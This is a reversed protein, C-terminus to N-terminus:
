VASAQRMQDNRAAIDEATAPFLIAAGDAAMAQSDDVMQRMGTDYGALARALDGRAARLERALTAAGVMALSTGMGSFFSACYAADGVLVTHGRSWSDMRIQGVSDFYFDPARRVEDIVQPVKWAPEDQFAAVVISRQAEIDRFDYDIWESRFGLLASCDVGDGRLMVMRGPTNYVHSGSLGVGAACRKVIAVYLGLHHVFMEEPGFVLTRVNSRMGDAGVLLDAGLTTGDTLRATVGDRDQEVSEISSDYRFAVSDPVAEQLIDSLRDRSIEIDDPSDYFQTSPEFTAEVESRSNLFYYIDETPVRSSAIEDLLGMSRAVDLAEGRVDVAVGGRRPDRSTEVVTVEHDDRAMWYATSLGAISAGSILIKM